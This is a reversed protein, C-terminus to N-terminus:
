PIGAEGMFPLQQGSLDQSEFRQIEPNPELFFVVVLACVAATAGFGIWWVPRVGRFFFRGSKAKPVKRIAHIFNETMEACESEPLREIMPIRELITKVESDTLDKKNPNMM